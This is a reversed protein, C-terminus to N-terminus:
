QKTLRIKNKSFFIFMLVILHLVQDLINYALVHRAVDSTILYCKFYDIVFHSGILAFFNWHAYRNRAVTYITVSVVIAYIICHLALYFISERKANSLFNYFTLDGIFHSLIVGIFEFM